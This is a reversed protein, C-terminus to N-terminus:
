NVTFSCSALVTMHRDGMQYVKIQKTGTSLFTARDVCSFTGDGLVQAFVIGGEGVFVDLTMGPKFGQGTITFQSGNAVPDPTVWCTESGTRRAPGGGKDEKPTAALPAILLAGMVLTAFFRWLFRTSKANQMQEGEEKTERRNGDLAFAEGPSVISSQLDQAM